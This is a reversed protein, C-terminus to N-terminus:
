SGVSRVRRDGGGGRHGSPYAGSDVPFLLVALVGLAVGFGLVARRAAARARDRAQEMNERNLVLIETSVEKIQRFWVLLGAAGAQGYYSSVRETSGQPIAFFAIGHRRYEDKLARLREVLEQETPFITINNAEIRFQEEFLAWNAEFQQRAEVERGPDASLAFQFSSDMRELAENLRFMAQVSKYNEQLIADIQGATRDLQMWGVVGLASLLLGLPVFSLLVRTRLSM